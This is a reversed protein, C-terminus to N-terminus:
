GRSDEPPPGTAKSMDAQRWGHEGYVGEEELTDILGRLSAELERLRTSSSSDERELDAAFSGFWDSFKNDYETFFTEPGIVGPSGSAKLMLGGIASQEETWLMLRQHDFRSSSLKARVEDLRNLVKKTREADEFELYTLERTLLERWGLYAAFRYLTGLLAM